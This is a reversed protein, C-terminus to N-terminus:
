SLNHQVKPKGTNTQTREPGKYNIKPEMVTHKHTCTPTLALRFHSLNSRFLISVYLLPPQSALSMDAGKAITFAKRLQSQDTRTAAEPEEASVPVHFVLNASLIQGPYQPMNSRVCTALVQLSKRHFKRQTSVEEAGVEWVASCVPLQM